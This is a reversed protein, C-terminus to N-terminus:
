VDVSGFLPGADTRYDDLSLTRSVEDEEMAISSHRSRADFASEDEEPLSHLSTNVSQAWTNGATTQFPSSTLL